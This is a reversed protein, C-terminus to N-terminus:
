SPTRLFNFERRDLITSVIGGATTNFEVCNFFGQKNPQDKKNLAVWAQLLIASVHM